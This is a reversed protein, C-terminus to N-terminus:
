LLYITLMFNLLYGVSHPESLTLLTWLFKGSTVETQNKIVHSALSEAQIGLSCTYFLTSVEYETQVLSM